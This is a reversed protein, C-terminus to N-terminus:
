YRGIIIGKHGPESFSPVTLLASVKRDENILVCAAVVRLLRKGHRQDLHSPGFPYGIDAFGLFSVITAQEHPL